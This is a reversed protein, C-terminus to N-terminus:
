GGVQQHDTDLAAPYDNTIQDLALAYLREMEGQLREETIGAGKDELDRMVKAIVGDDGPADLSAAIVERAYDEAANRSMGMHGAAWLGLLKNRRSVAKFRREEDLKYKAEYSKEREDFIDEAM